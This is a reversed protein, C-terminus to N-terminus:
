GAVEMWRMLFEWETEAAAIEAKLRIIDLALDMCAMDAYRNAGSVTDEGSDQVARIRQEKEAVLLEGLELRFQSLERTLTELQSHETFAPTTV